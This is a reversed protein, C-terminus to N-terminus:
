EPLEGGISSGVEVGHHLVDVPRDRKELVERPSVRVIRRDPVLQALSIGMKGRRGAAGVGEREAREIAGNREIGAKGRRVHVRRADRKLDTVLLQGAALALQAPAQHQAELVDAGAVVGM